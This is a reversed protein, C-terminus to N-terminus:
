SVDAHIKNKMYEHFFSLESYPDAGRKSHYDMLGKLTLFVTPKRKLPAARRNKWKMKRLLLILLFWGTDSFVGEVNELPPGLGANTTFKCMNTWLSLSRCEKLMDENFRSPLDHVYIYRRGCPDSKNEVTKMARM